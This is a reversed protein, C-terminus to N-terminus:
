AIGVNNQDMEKFGKFMPDFEDVDAMDFEFDDGDDDTVFIPFARHSVPGLEELRFWRCGIRVQVDNSELLKNLNEIMQAEVLNDVNSMVCNSCTVSVVGEDCLITVDNCKKCTLENM